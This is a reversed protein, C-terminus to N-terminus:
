KRGARYWRNLVTRLPIRMAPAHMATIAAGKLIWDPMMKSVRDIRILTVARIKPGTGADMVAAAARANRSNMPPIPVQAPEADMRLLARTPRAQRRQTYGRHFPQRHSFTQVMLTQTCKASSAHWNRSGYGSLMRIIRTIARGTISTYGATVTISLRSSSRWCANRPVCRCSAWDSSRKLISNSM